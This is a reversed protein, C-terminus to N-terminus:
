KAKRAGNAAPSGPVSDGQFAPASADGTLAELYALIQSREVATLQLRLIDTKVKLVAELTAVSGNHFYPATESVGRLTPTRFAGRDAPTKSVQFRGLDPNTPSDALHFSYYRMDTYLPPAHCVACGAKGGFLEAGAIADASAASRDGAEHRDWASNGSRLTRVFSALAEASRHRSPADSFSRKFHAAYQRSIVLAATKAEPDSGLQGKWHGLLMAELPEARGDWYYADHYAVNWLSPTHRQNRRGAATVSLAEHSAWGIAPLHCTACSTEGDSSLSTEFFLLQGLAVKNATTPNHDPSPTPPLGLPDSAIMPAPALQVAGADPVEHAVVDSGPNLASPEVPANAKNNTSNKCSALLLLGVIISAHKKM